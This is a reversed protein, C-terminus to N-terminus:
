DLMQVKLGWNTTDMNRCCGSMGIWMVRTDANSGFAGENGFQIRSDLSLGNMMAFPDIFERRVLSSRWDRGQPRAYKASVKSTYLDKFKFINTNSEGSFLADTWSTGKVCKNKWEVEIIHVNWVIWVIIGTIPLGLKCSPAVHCLWCFMQSPWM